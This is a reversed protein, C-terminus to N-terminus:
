KKLKRRGQGSDYAVTFEQLLSLSKIAVTGELSAAGYRSVILTVVSDLADELISLQQEIESQDGVELSVGGYYIFPPTLRPPTVSCHENDMISKLESLMRDLKTGIRMVPSQLTFERQIQIHLKVIRNRIKPLQPGIVIHEALSFSKANKARGHNVSYTIVAACTDNHVLLQKEEGSFPNVFSCVESKTRDDFERGCLDCSVGKALDTLYSLM